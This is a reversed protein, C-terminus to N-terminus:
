HTLSKIELDCIRIDCTPSNKSIRPKNRSTKNNCQMSSSKTAKTNFYYFSRRQTLTTFYLENNFTLIHLSKDSMKSTSLILSLFLYNSMIYGMKLVNAELM